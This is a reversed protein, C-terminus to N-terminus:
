SGEVVQVFYLRIPDFASCRLNGLDVFRHERPALCRPGKRKEEKRGEKRKEDPHQGRAMSGRLLRLRRLRAEWLGFLGFTVPTCPSLCFLHHDRM